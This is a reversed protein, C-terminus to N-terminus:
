LLGGQMIGILQFNALLKSIHHWPLRAMLRIADLTAQTSLDKTYNFFKTTYKYFINKRLNTWYTRLQIMHDVRMNLTCLTSPKKSM